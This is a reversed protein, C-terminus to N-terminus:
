QGKVFKKPKRLFSKKCSPSCFYYTKGAYEAQPTSGGVKVEQCSGDKYHSCVPCLAACGEKVTPTKQAAVAVQPAVAALLFCAFLIERM